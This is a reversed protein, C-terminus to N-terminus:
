ISDVYKKLITKAKKIDKEQGNKNGGLLIIIKIKGVIATHVRIGSPWKLETLGEFRNVFGWHGYDALRNLRAEVIVKTKLDQRSLWDEFEPTKILYFM